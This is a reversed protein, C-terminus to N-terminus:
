LEAEIADKFPKAVNRFGVSMGHIEDAWDNEGLRGGARRGRLDAIPQESRCCPQAHRVARRDLIRIIGRQLSLSVIGKETLPGGLWENQKAYVPHRTDGPFGGPLAYDYGHIFIPLRRFDPDSRVTNVVKRYDGELRSLVTALNAMDVHGAADKGADFTKILASLVPNGQLDEGIVDNGAGSFLFGALGNAKQEDLAAKYEPERNVM